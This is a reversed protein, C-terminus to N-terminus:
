RAALPTITGAADGGLNGAVLNNGLSEFSATGTQYFGIGTNETVMSNTARVFVAGAGSGDAYFGHSTNGSIMAHDLNLAVNHGATNSSVYVGYSSAVSVLDVASVVADTAAGSYLAVGIGAGGGEIRCRVLASYSSLHVGEGSAARVVNGTLTAFSGAGGAITIGYTGGTVTCNEISLAGFTAANIGSHGGATQTINLGRIVVRDGAGAAIDIGNAGGVTISATIGPAGIVTIPKAISFSGYGGSSIAIIEGGANTVSIARNFSRCEAGPTCSNADNGFTAVFSRNNQALGELAIASLILTLAFRTLRTRM